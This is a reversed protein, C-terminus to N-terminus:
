RNSRDEEASEKEANVKEVNIMLCLDTSRLDAPSCALV